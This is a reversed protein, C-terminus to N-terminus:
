LCINAPNWTAIAWQWFEDVSALTAASGPEEIQGLFAMARFLNNVAQRNDLALAGTQKSLKEGCHNKVLPLHFYAPENYGLQRQLYIQRATNDLLDAGRVVESIAQYHDDVVVALQYAFVHDARRVVFDGVERAVNQIQRGYLGDDFVIDQEPVTIRLAYQKNIPAQKRTRCIGPYISNGHGSQNLQKRSCVCYYLLDKALLQQLAAEYLAVRQSQYLPTDDWYLGHAELSYLISDAAGAQNRALDLDELRLFWKGNHRKAQLYSGLAAVLSGFHLPGTPSPAFRGRYSSATM